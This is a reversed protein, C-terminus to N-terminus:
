LDKEKKVPQTLERLNNGLYKLYALSVSGTSAQADHLSKAARMVEVENQGEVLPTWRMGGGIKSLFGKEGRPNKVIGHFGDTFEEQWKIVDMIGAESEQKESM